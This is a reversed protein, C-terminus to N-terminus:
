SSFPPKTLDLKWIVKKGVIKWVLKPNYLREPVEFYIFGVHVEGPSLAKSDVYGLFPPKYEMMFSPKYYGFDDSVYVDGLSPTFVLNSNSSPAGCTVIV